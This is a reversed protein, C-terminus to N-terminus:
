YPDEVVCYGHPWSAHSSCTGLKCDGDFTCQAVYCGGPSCPFPGCARDDVHPMDVKPTCACANFKAYEPWAKRADSDAAETRVRVPDVYPGCAHSSTPVAGPAQPGCAVLVLLWRRTVGADYIV